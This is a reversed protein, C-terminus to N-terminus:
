REQRTKGPVRTDTVGRDSSRVDAQERNSCSHVDSSRKNKDQSKKWDIQDYNHKYQSSFCNRPTDGKGNM